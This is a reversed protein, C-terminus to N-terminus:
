LRGTVVSQTISQTHEPTKNSVQTMITAHGTNAYCLNGIAAAPTALTATPRLIYRDQRTTSGPLDAARIPSRGGARPQLTDPSILPITLALGWGRLGPM